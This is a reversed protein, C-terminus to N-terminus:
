RWLREIMINDLARGKGDMSIKIGAENLTGTFALGTFQSGQDTNLIEPTPYLRLARELASICFSEDMSVSVEWSLVKRGYWDMVAVLYVFGAALRIYTIDTFWVQNPRDIACNACYIRIFRTGQRPNVQM